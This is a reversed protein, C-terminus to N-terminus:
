GRDPREPRAHPVVDPGAAPAQDRGFARVAAALMTLAIALALVSQPIWMAVGANEDSRGIIVIRITYDWSTWIMLGTVAITLLAEAAHIRRSVAPPFSRTLRDLRLHRGRIQAVLSAVVTMGIMLYVQLQDAGSLPEDVGYRGVVNVFNVLVALILAAGLVRSFFDAIATLMM